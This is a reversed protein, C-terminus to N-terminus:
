KKPQQKDTGTSKGDDGGKGKPEEKKAEPKAEKSPEETTFNANFTDVLKDVVPMKNAPIRFYSAVFDNLTVKRPNAELSKKFVELYNNIDVSFEIRADNAPIPSNPDRQPAQPSKQYNGSQVERNTIEARIVPTEAGTQQNTFYDKTILLRDGKKFPLRSIAKYAQPSLDLNFASSNEDEYTVFMQYKPFKGKDFVTITDSLLIFEHQEDREMIKGMVKMVPNKLEIIEGQKNTYTTEIRLGM